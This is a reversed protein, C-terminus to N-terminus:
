VVVITATTLSFKSFDFQKPVFFIMSKKNGYGGLMEDGEVEQHEEQCSTRILAQELLKPQEFLWCNTSDIDFRTQGRFRETM